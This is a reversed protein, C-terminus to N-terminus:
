SESSLPPEPIAAKRTVIYAATRFYYPVARWMRVIRLERRGVIRSRLKWTSLSKRIDGFRAVVEDIKPRKSPDAQTMDAVLSDM